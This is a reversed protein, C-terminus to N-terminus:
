NQKSLDTYPNSDNSEPVVPMPVIQEQPFNPQFLQQNLVDKQSDGVQHELLSMHNQMLMQERMSMMQERTMVQTEPISMLQQMMKLQKYTMAINMQHALVLNQMPICSKMETTNAECGIGKPDPENEPIPLDKSDSIVRKTKVDVKKLILGYINDIAPSLGFFYSLGYLLIGPVTNIFDRFRSHGFIKQENINYVDVVIKDQEIKGNIQSALESIQEQKERIISQLKESFIVEHEVNVLAFSYNVHEGPESEHKWSQYHIYDVYNIEESNKHTGYDYTKVCLGQLKIIPPNYHCKAIYANIDESNAADDDEDGVIYLCGKWMIDKECCCKCNLSNSLISLFAPGSIMMIFLVSNEKFVALCMFGTLVLGFFFNQIIGLIIKAKTSVYSGYKRAAFYLSLNICVLGAFVAWFYPIGSHCFYYQTTSICIYYANDMKEKVYACKGICSKNCESLDSTSM